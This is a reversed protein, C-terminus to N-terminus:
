DNAWRPRGLPDITVKRAQLSNATAVHKAQESSRRADTHESFYLQGQTSAATRFVLLKEEGKWDALVMEGGSLSMVFRADPRDPHQRRIIPRRRQLRDAAELMTVFVADRKTKGNEEFEFICLHHTSGPKVHAQDPSSARIPRITEEKKLLRVKKIPVGSPMRLDSMLQKFKKSDIKKGRGFELGEQRLREMIIRRIGLDRVHEIENPSLDVVMKRAGWVGEQPTPGYFTDEHLRGRVKRRARHSVYLESIAQKLDARFSNWPPGLLEDSRDTPRRGRALQQLRRRNTLAIVVADIAHHRHDARNKEGPALKSQHHWAPSDPLEALLTELGWRWRLEATLQGKLGLVAHDADFLCRLYESTARAIYRTDNLQREIFDDLKLEKQLFRRYKPYSIRGDKMWRSARQCIREYREPQAAALWEYPTRDAKDENERRFCVVKNNQSDDLCRSYPLIHDVDVAGGFLQEFSIPDDSYACAHQQDEWLLHRIRADRTPKIGRERLKEAAEGHRQENDRMRALQDQYRRYAETGKQPRTKVDRGMEVHIAAPKGYERLIANVLKRLEVLTRKVVPNPIDGIPCDRARKPDPLRDFIRRQLEDRRLYGAAHLASQRPDSLSQYVLGMEMHPLLRNIAKLSLHVYGPPFDVNLAAEARASTMGWQQQARHLIADDEREDDILARVIADKEQEPRNHWDIGVAKAMRADVVMGLLYPRKGKELNFRVSELFGLATRIQDFTMKDTEALKSLLLARQETNLPQEDHRGDALDVYRLNNVEQILRFRQARRDARLCRPQKPELECLGVASKPWYMRRQFFIIGHLGFAELPSLQGRRRRPHCPYTQRGLAGYKLKETLLEAHGLECQAQWIRQFEDEYMARRTHRKRIRDQENRNKHDLGDLKDALFWGLTEADDANMEAALKNIEALMGKVEKDGRDKKRNSLFGRRAGLHLMVRGLEHPTLKRTLAEARLQYPNRALLAQQEAPDAPLLGAEVLAGRLLRKRRSRRQIQRRMARATRRAENRSVEKSSDFNDVGEPFVRVGLDVIAGQSEDVLAWGISNPGLDLGLTLNSM